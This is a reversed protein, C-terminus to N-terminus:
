QGRGPEHTVAGAQVKDLGGKLADSNPRVVNQLSNKHRLTRQASLARDCQALSVCWEVGLSAPCRALKSMEM